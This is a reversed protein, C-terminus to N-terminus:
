DVCRWFNHKLDNATSLILTFVIERKGLNSTLGAPSMKARVKGHSRDGGVDGKGLTRVRYFSVGFVPSFIM